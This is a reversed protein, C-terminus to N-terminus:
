QYREKLAQLAVEDLAQPQLTDTSDSEGELQDRLAEIDNIAYLKDLDPEEGPHVIDQLFLGFACDHSDLLEMDLWTYCSDCQVLAEM